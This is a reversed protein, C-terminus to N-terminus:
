FQFKTVDIFNSVVTAWAGESKYDFQYKFKALEARMQYGHDAAPETDHCVIIKAISAYRKIDEKRREGPSHDILLVDVNNLKVDNWNPAHYLRHSKTQLREYKEVWEKNFDYSELLRKKYECYDHLQKTSGDGCGFEVVLGSTIELSPWLLHLHNNWNGVGYLFEQRTMYSNGQKRFNTACGM